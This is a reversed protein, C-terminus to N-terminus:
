ETPLGVLPPAAEPDFSHWDFGLSRVITAAIQGATACGDAPKTAAVPAPGLIAAWTQDSGLRRSEPHEVGAEDLGSGHHRWGDGAPGPEARGHDTTVILTTKGAWKPDAQAADWLERAFRDVRETSILYEDYTGGHAHADPEGYAVYLIRPRDAKFSHLAFAHTLADYREDDRWPRPLEDQVRNLAAIDAGSGQLPMFGANIPIGSRKANLIAPFVNWTAFARVKGAFGPQHNLWELATVDPNDVPSNSNAWGAKGTLMESYGPYSFWYKNAVKMCSGHDRDGILVGGREAFSHLFPALARPRDAPDIFRQRIEDQKKTFAKDGALEPDAGRFLDQWRVGDVTVLILREGKDEHESMTGASAPAALLAATSM